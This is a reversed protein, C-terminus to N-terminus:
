QKDQQLHLSDLPICRASGDLDSNHPEHAVAAYHITHGCGLGQSWLKVLAVWVTKCTYIRDHYKFDTGQGGPGGKGLTLEEM